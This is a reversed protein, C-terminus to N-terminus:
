CREGSWLEGVAEHVPFESLGAFLDHHWNYKRDRPLRILRFNHRCPGKSGSIRHPLHRNRHADRRICLWNLLLLRFPVMTTHQSRIEHYSRSAPSILIPHSLKPCLMVTGCAIGGVVAGVSTPILRIGADTASM